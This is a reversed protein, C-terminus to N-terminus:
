KVVSVLATAGVLGFFFTNNPDKVSQIALGAVRQAVQSGTTDLFRLQQDGTFVIAGRVPPDCFSCGSTNVNTQASAILTDFPPSFALAAPRGFQVNKKPYDELYIAEHLRDGGLTGPNPYINATAPNFSTWNCDAATGTCTVSTTDSLFNGNTDEYVFVAGRGTSTSGNAARDWRPYVIVYVDSGRASAQARARQLIGTLDSAANQAANRFAIGDFAAAAMAMLIGIIALVIMVEVLTFGARRSFFSRSAM